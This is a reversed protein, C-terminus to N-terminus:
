TLYLCISMQMAFKLPHVSLAGWSIIPTLVKVVLIVNLNLLQFM